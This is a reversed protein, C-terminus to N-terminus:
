LPAEIFILKGNSNEIESWNEINFSIQV